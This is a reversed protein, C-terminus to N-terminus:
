PEPESIRFADKILRFAPTGGDPDVVALVDFRYPENQPRHRARYVRAARAIRLQKMSTVSDEPNPDSRRAKVEVFVLCDGDMAVIDIEGQRTRYPSALLRYGLSRLYIAGRIEWRRGLGVIKRWILPLPM